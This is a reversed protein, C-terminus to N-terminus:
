GAALGLRELVAGTEAEWRARLELTSWAAGIGALILLVLLARRM